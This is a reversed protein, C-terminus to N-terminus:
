DERGIINIHDCKLCKGRRVGNIFSTYDFLPENCEFCKGIPFLPEIEGAMAAEITRKAGQIDNWGDRTNNMIPTNPLEKPKRKRLIGM